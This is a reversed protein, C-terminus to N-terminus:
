KDLAKRFEQTIDRVAKGLDIGTNGQRPPPLTSKESVLPPRRELDDLIRELGLQTRKALPAFHRAVAVSALLAPLVPLLVTVMAAGSVVMLTGMATGVVGLAAAGGLHGNRSNRLSASLRVHYFGSELPTITATVLEVKELYPKIRAGGFMAGMRRMGRAFSEMPEYTIRGLAARQVVMHEQKELWRSIANAIAEESGQVVREASLDARGFVQDLMGEPAPVDGHTREELLAQRLYQDPIGVDKGLALIEEESLGEGIDRSSAQLEAARQLVREFTARDIRAPLQSSMLDREDGSSHRVGPLAEM